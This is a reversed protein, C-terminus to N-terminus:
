TKEPKLQLGIPKLWESIAIKCQEIIKRSQSIVVFDDAYRVVTTNITKGKVRHKPFLKEIHRVMGDLAINALLPSIVGGQPTGAKTDDFV